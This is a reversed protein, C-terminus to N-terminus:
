KRMCLNSERNGKHSAAPFDKKTDARPFLIEVRKEQISLM